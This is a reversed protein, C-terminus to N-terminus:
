KYNNCFEFVDTGDIDRGISTWNEVKKTAFLELMQRNEIKNTSLEILERFEEPKESHKSVKSQIFNCKQCRFANINGNIGVLLHETQGRFWYGMGLSPIKRWTLMTKYKFEWCKMLEFAYLILPVTAWLFLVSNKDCVNSININKLLDISYTQYKSAAGSRMNGGTNKNNYAYPPDIYLVNFSM